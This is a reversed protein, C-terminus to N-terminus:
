TIDIRETSHQSGARWDRRGRAPNAVKMERGRVVIDLFYRRVRWFRSEGAM